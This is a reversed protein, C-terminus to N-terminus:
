TSSFLRISSCTFRQTCLDSTVLAVNKVVHQRCFAISVKYATKRDADTELM